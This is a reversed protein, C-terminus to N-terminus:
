AAHRDGDEGVYSLAERLVDLGAGRRVAHTSLHQRWKRAGPRGHFLGLMHRTMDSLRAGKALEAEMWPTLADLAARADPHPAPEGFFVPDVQSLLEPTQYAARGVMVGDLAPADGDPALLAQMTALDALGGNIAIPFEPM